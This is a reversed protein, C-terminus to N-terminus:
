PSFWVEAGEALGSPVVKRSNDVRRRTPGTLWGVSRHEDAPVLNVYSYGEVEPNPNRVCRPGRGRRDVGCCCWVWCCCVCLRRVAPPSVVLPVRGHCCRLVVQGHDLDDPDTATADVGHVPHDLDAELADLEDGDVGVRLREEHAVGVDLEVDAALEGAAEAGAGVRVDAALGGLVVRLLDLLHELAGVHDEHGRALATAGAGAARRDDGPDRAGQARQGDTHHGTREGELSPAPGVLGLLADGPEALLDVGEDDDGVVPQQRDAVAADRHEVGELLGVLHQELADRADGVQDGGGAQDVEVEGVHLRHHAVGAGREHADAGGAALVARDGGGLHRDGARQELRGDLARVAHQQRDGTAGVEAEELDVLGRRQHRLRRVGLGVDDETRDDVVGEAVLHPDGDDGGPEVAAHRLPALRRVMARRSGTGTCVWASVRAAALLRRRSGAGTPEEAVGAGRAPRM